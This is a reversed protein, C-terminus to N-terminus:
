SFKAQRRATGQYALALAIVCDDHMGEPANMRVNGAATLEYEYAMLENTQVDVDMLRIKGQEIGMALRDILNEKSQNTLVFPHVNVGMSRLRDYVADGVGTADVGVPGRYRDAVAKIAGVQREWSIQNFREHYVQRGESDLVDIVTFDSVRALDVGIMYRSHDSPPTPQKRGTDVAERVKRFVGGSDEIFEALFEQRFVREPLQRRAAEIESAPIHPNGSTPRQWSAWETEAPDQALCFLRWFFNKGRPTSYFDADGQMDALTPRISENWAVELNKVKAAEDIVVRKYKRSRGADPNDLTWFEIVGGTVIEIRHDSANASVTVPALLKVFERWVDGLYKYTPAFWGVPDGSLMPKILRNKGMTTKGYRRGCDVVNFRRM